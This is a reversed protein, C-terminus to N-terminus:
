PPVYPSSFQHELGLGNCFAESRANKFEIGNHSCIAIMAHKPRENKLRRILDRVFPFAEEKSEM